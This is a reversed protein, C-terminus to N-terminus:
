LINREDLGIERCWAAVDFSPCDKNGFDHHGAVKVDPWQRVMRKVLKRMTREQAGTRTDYPHKKNATLGGVYCIHRSISNIGSVGNTVEWPDVVDDDDFPHLVHQEGNLGILVSYGVVKWGRGHLKNVPIGNIRVNPLAARSQFTRGMYRVGVPSIDRPGLHWEEIMGPTVPMGAPTATCHIVLYKLKRSM